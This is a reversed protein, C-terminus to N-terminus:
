HFHLCISSLNSQTSPGSIFFATHWNKLCTPVTGMRSSTLTWRSSFYKNPFGDHLLTCSHVSSTDARASVGTPEVNIIISASLFRSTLSWLLLEPTPTHTHLDLAARLFCSICHISRGNFFLVHNILARDSWFPNSQYFARTLSDDRKVFPAIHISTCESRTDQTRVIWCSEIKRFALVCASLCSVRVCLNVEYLSPGHLRILVSQLNMQRVFIM